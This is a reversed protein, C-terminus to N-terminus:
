CVAVRCSPCSSFRENGVRREITIQQTVPDVEINLIHVHPHEKLPIEIEVDFAESENWVRKLETYISHNQDLPLDYFLRQIGWPSFEFDWEHRTLNAM